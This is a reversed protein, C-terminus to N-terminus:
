LRILSFSLVLRSSVSVGVEEDSIKAKKKKKEKKASAVSSPPFFLVHKELMDVLKNLLPPYSDFSEFIQGLVFM